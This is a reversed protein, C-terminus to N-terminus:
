KLLFTDFTCNFVGLDNYFKHKAIANLLFCIEGDDNLMLSEYVDMHPSLSLLTLFEQVVRM